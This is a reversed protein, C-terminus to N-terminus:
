IGPIAVLSVIECNPPYSQYYLGDFLANIQLVQECFYAEGNTFNLNQWTLFNNVDIAFTTTITGVGGSSVAFPQHPTGPNTSILQGDIFLQQQYVIYVAAM